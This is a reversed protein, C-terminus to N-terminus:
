RRFLTKLDVAEEDKIKKLRPVGVPWDQDGFDWIQLSGKSM